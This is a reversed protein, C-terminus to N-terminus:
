NLRFGWFMNIWLGRIFEAQESNLAYTMKVCHGQKSMKVKWNGNEDQEPFHFKCEQKVKQIESLM